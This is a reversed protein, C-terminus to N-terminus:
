GWAEASGSRRRTQQIILKELEARQLNHERLLSPKWKFQLDANEDPAAVLLLDMWEITLIGKEKIPFITKDAVYTKLIRQAARLAM